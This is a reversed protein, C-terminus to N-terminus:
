WDWGHVRSCRSGAARRFYSGIYKRVRHCFIDVALRERRDDNEAEEALLERMDSTLGSLGLLGSQKNLTPALIVVLDKDYNM